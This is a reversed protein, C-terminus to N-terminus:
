SLTEWTKVKRINIILNSLGFFACLGAGFIIFAYFIWLPIGTGGTVNGTEYMHITYKVALYTYVSMTVVEVFEAWMRWYVRAKGHFMNPILDINVHNDEMAAVPVSCWCAIAMIYTPLEEMGGMSTKLVYRFFVQVVILLFIAMVALGCIGRIISKFSEYARGLGSKKADM